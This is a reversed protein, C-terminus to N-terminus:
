SSNPLPIHAFQQSFWTWILLFCQSTLRHVWGPGPTSEVADDPNVFVPTTIQEMWVIRLSLCTHMVTQANKRQNQPFMQGLFLSLFFALVLALFAFALCFPVLCKRQFPWSIKCLFGWLDKGHTSGLGWTKGYPSSDANDEQLKGLFLKAVMFLQMHNREYVCLILSLSPFHSFSLLLSISLSLVTRYIWHLNWYWCLGSGLCHPLTMVTWCREYVYICFKEWLVLLCGRGPYLFINM